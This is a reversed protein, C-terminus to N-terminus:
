KSIGPPPPAFQHVFRLSYGTEGKARRKPDTIHQDIVFLAEAGGGALPRQEGVAHIHIPGQDAEYPAVSGFGGVRAEFGEAVARYAKLDGLEPTNWRVSCAHYPPLELWVTPNGEEELSWGRAPDERMTVKVEQDTLRRAHRAAMLADVAKDDPFATLCVEGYLAAMRSLRRDATAAATDATAPDALFALLILM